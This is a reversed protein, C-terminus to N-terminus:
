IIYYHRIKIIHHHHIKTIYHHHLVCGTMTESNCSNMSCFFYGLQVWTVVTLSSDSVGIKLCFKVLQTPLFSVVARGVPFVGVVVLPVHIYNFDM